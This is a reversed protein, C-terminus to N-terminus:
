IMVHTKGVEVADPFAMGDVFGEQQVTQLDAKAAM